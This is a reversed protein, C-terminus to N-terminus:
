LHEGPFNLSQDRRRARIRRFCLNLVILFVAEGVNEGKKGTIMIPTAIDSYSAFQGGLAFHDTFSMGSKDPFTTITVPACAVPMQQAYRMKQEHKYSTIGTNTFIGDLYRFCPELFSMM